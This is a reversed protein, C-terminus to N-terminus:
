LSEQMQQPATSLREYSYETGTEGRILEKIIIGPTESCVAGRKELYSKIADMHQSNYRRKVFRSICQGAETLTVSGIPLKNNKYEIVTLVHTGSVIHIRPVTDAPFSFVFNSVPNFNILGLRELEQLASFTINLEQLYDNTDNTDVMSFSGGNGIEGGFDELVDVQLSCLNSFILANKQTLESLIRIISPPTSGPSEFEGALVNGWLVQAKEDSVFKGADLLRSVFADDVGSAMSFDTGPKASEQAIEAIAMQAELEKCHKKAGAILLYKQDPTYDGDEISKVYAEVAKKKMGWFPFPAGLANAIKDIGQRGAGEAVAKMIELGPNEPEM